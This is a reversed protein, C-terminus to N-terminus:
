LEERDTTPLRKMREVEISIFDYEETVKGSLMYCGNGTFPFAKASPPFHVTDIWEGERDIFTGFHMREKKQMTSTTKINVLYAPLEVQKGVYQHLDKACLGEPLKERLLEFPSMLSFGVLEIQDFAEDLRSEMLEPLRFTKPEPHFLEAAKSKHQLPQLLAHMEWLLEKKGRGTFDFAGARILLRMQELSIKVRRIVDHLGKYAGNTEREELLQKITEAELGAVLNLGLYIRNEKIVCLEASNNLCPMIIDAGHKRAEHIYLEKRYFGGGNNLTAVMYERPFHAKLYLAQYSEVAYSASHGKSFAFNAFSEIQLWVKNILGPDYGKQRCNDM